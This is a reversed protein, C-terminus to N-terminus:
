EACPEARREASRREGLRRERGLDPSEARIRRVCRLLTERLADTPRALRYYAFRGQRRVEVLGEGRLTGLHRSITPQPEELLEVLDCVCLWGVALLNLIRVRTPNALALFLQSADAAGDIRAVERLSEYTVNM